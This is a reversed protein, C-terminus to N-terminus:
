FHEVALGLICHSISYDRLIVPNGYLRGVFVALKVLTLTAWQWQWGDGTTWPDAAHFGLAVGLCRSRHQRLFRPLFNNVNSGKPGRSRHRKKSFWVAKLLPTKKLDVRPNYLDIIDLHGHIYIWIYAHMDNYICLVHFTTTKTYIYMGKSSGGTHFM